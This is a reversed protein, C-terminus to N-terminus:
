MKGVGCGEQLTWMKNKLSLCYPLSLEPLHHNDCESHPIVSLMPVRPQHNKQPLHVYWENTVGSSVFVTRTYGLRCCRTPFYTCFVARFFLSLPAFELTCPVPLHIPDDPSVPASGGGLVVYTCPVLSFIGPSCTWLVRGRQDRQRRLGPPIYSIKTSIWNFDGKSFFFLFFFYISKCEIIQFSVTFLVWM